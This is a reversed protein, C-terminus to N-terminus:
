NTQKRLKKFVYLIFMFVALSSILTVMRFLSFTQCLSVSLALIVNTLLIISITSILLLLNRM